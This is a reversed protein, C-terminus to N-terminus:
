QAPAAATVDYSPANTLQEQTANVMLRMDGDVDKQINLADFQLAVPKEGVGLFGGVDVVVAEISGGRDFVVDGVEGLNEESPSYVASGILKDASVDQTAVEFGGAPGEPTDAAMQDAPAAADAPPQETAAMDTAPEEWATAQELEERTMAVTLRPQDGEKTVQIQDFPIPSRRRASAWSVASTWSAQVPTEM